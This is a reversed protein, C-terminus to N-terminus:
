RGHAGQCPTEVRKNLGRHTRVFAQVVQWPYESGVDDDKAPNPDAGHQLVISFRELYHLVRPENSEHEERPRDSSIRRRAHELILLALHPGMSGRRRVLAQLQRASVLLSSNRQRAQLGKQRDSWRRVGVPM